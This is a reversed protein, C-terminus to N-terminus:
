GQEVSETFRTGCATCSSPDRERGLYARCNPCRWTVFTLLLYLGVVAFCASFLAWEPVDLVNAAPWKWVLVILLLALVAPPGLFLQLRKRARVSATRVRFENPEPENM